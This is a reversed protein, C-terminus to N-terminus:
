KELYIYIREGGRKVVPVREFVRVEIDAPRAHSNFEVLEQPVPIWVKEKDGYSYSLFPNENPDKPIFVNAKAM